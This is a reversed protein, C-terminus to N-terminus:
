LGKSSSVLVTSVLTKGEALRIRRELDAIVATVERDSKKVLKRNGIEYERVHNGRTKKMVRLQEQLEALDEM